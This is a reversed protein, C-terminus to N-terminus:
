GANVAGGEESVRKLGALTNPLTRDIGAGILRRFLFALPGSFAVWHTASTRQGNGTLEHGFTMRCLPLQGEITFSRNPLVETVRIKARPGERPELWGAAGRRLEPLGVAKTESDWIPWLEPNAYLAFVNTAPADIEITHAITM